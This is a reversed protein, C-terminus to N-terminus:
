RWLNDVLDYSDTRLDPKATILVHKAVRESPTLPLSEVYEVYRPLKFKALKQAAFDYLATPPASAPTHGPRLIVYVKVEEGRLPDPVPVVAVARVAPHEILVSEVEAAAINEGSRRVMDKLRGVWHFYGREDKYVLDGTHLWGDRLVAATQEPQNWYGLMMPRGRVVLEGIQGDPVPQGEPDVAQAAKTPVPRGMAGSGVSEADDLPVALDVGSETMGFAERWPVRWRREFEAHFAPAIGSCAIMRLRHTQELAPNEAQKLLFFPMTGLLYLVTVGHEHITPWFRSVSFREMIVLPIGAILCAITNWQPDMYYFPQATLDVDGARLELFQAATQGLLLWYDHTLMCGKPFGTTGSTYQINLLDNPQIAADAFAAPADALLANFSHTGPPADGVVIIERLAPLHDRVAILRRLYDAHLILCAAGSDSLIHHLDREQYGTNTPVMVAGLRAIALWCVPFDPSNPLMVAVREGRAVGLRRLAHALRSARQDAEAFSVREAGFVFLPADGHRAAADALLQGVSAWPTSGAGM